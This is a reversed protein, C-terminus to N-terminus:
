LKTRTALSSQGLGKSPKLIKMAQTIVKQRSELEKVMTM